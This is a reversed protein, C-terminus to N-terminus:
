ATEQSAHRIALQKEPSLMLQFQEKEVFSFLNDQLYPSEDTLFSKTSESIEKELGVAQKLLEGRVKELEEDSKKSSNSDNLVMELKSYFSEIMTKLLSFKVNKFHRLYGIIMANVDENKCFLIDEVDPNFRENNGVEWGTELAACKKREIHDDIKALPTTISYYIVIYKVIKDIDKHTRQAYIEKIKKLDPFRELMDIDTNYGFSKKVNYPLKEWEQPTFAYNSSM